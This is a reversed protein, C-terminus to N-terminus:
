KSSVDLMHVLMACQLIVSTTTCLAGNWEANIIWRVRILESFEHEGDEIVSLSCVDAPSALCKLGAGYNSGIEQWLILGCPM